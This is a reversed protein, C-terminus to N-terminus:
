RRTETPSVMQAAGWVFYWRGVLGETRNTGLDSLYEMVGGSSLMLYSYSLTGAVPLLVSLTQVGSWNWERSLRPARSALTRGTQVSYGVHFTALGLLAYVLALLLTRTWEEVPPLFRPLGTSLIHATWVANHMLFLAVFINRANFLDFEDRRWDRFLPYLGLAVLLGILGWLRVREMRDLVLLLLGGGLVGVVLMWVLGFIARNPNGSM